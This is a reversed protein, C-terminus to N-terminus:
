RVAKSSSAAIAVACVGVWGEVCCLPVFSSVIATLALRSRAISSCRTSLNTYPMVTVGKSFEIERHCVRVGIQGRTAPNGCSAVRMAPHALREWLQREASWDGTPEEMQLESARPTVTEM